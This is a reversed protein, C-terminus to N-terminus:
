TTTRGVVFYTAVVSRRPLTMAGQYLRNLTQIWDEGTQRQVEAKVKYMVYNTVAPCVRALLPIAPTRMRSLILLTRKVRFHALHIEYTCMSM